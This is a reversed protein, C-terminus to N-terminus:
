GDGPLRNGPPEGPALKARLRARWDGVEIQGARATNPSGPEFVDGILAQWTAVNVVGNPELRKLVQARRVSIDTKVGFIGDVDPLTGRYHLQTQLAKVADGSSGTKLESLLAPWTSPGVVGDEPLRGGAQFARVAAETLAGFVGDVVIQAGGARLLYQLSRVNQGQDGQRLAPWQNPGM